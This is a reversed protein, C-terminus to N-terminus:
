SNESQDTSKQTVFVQEKGSVAKMAIEQVKGYANDIQRSLTDIQKQQDAVLKELSQIKTTLVNKEGEYGKVLIEENKKSERKLKETTESVAQQIKKELEAPFSDVNAQLTDMFKERESLLKERQDLDHERQETEKAFSERQELMQKDLSEIEDNLQQKKLEKERNFSYEFEEKERKRLKETEAKQEKFEQAHQYKEKEWNLKTNVIDEELKIKRQEMESEFELKKRNQAELLAALSHASKEIEYIDMLEKNRIEVANKIETYRDKEKEIKGAMDALFRGVEDKLDYVRRTVDNSEVAKEVSHIVKEEKIAKQIEEPKLERESQNELQEKLSEYAELMEKKTNSMSVNEAKLDNSTM